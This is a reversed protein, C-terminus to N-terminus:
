AARSSADALAASVLQDIAAALEADPRGDVVRAYGKPVSLRGVVDAGVHALVHELHEAARRGAGPGPSTSLVVVPRERLVSRGPPRSLWEIANLLVGPVTGNYEPTAVVLLDAQAVSQRLAAVAAPDGAAEAPTSFFPLRDLDAVVTADHGQDAAAAAASSALATNLSGPRFSGSLTLVTM